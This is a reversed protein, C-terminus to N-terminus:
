SGHELCFRGYWHSARPSTATPKSGCAAMPKGASKPLWNRSKLMSIQTITRSTSMSNLSRRNSFTIPYMEMLRIVTSFSRAAKERTHKLRWLWAVDIHTHGVCHVTVAHHKEIRELEKKLQENALAVTEYFEDSGPEAYDILKYCRNLASLLDHREPKEQELVAVTQLVARGWYYFDDADQDLWCLEATRIQYEQEVPRGGGNLGSWLRIQVLIRTGALEAPLFVEQHNSDVGQYPEGNLYLLSEFGSNNGGTRWPRPPSPSQGEIPQSM